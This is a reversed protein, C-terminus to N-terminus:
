GNRWRVLVIAAALLTLGSIAAGATFSTPRFNFSITHEGPPVPVARLIYDARLLPAPQGNISAQWGPYAVESLILLAPVPTTVQLSFSQPSNVTFGAQAIPYAAPGPSTIAATQGAPENVQAAFQEAGRELLAVRWRDFGPDAIKELIAADSAIEAQSVLWARPGVTNLRHVYTTDQGAPEQYIITSPLYLEERWSIVYKVNLLEWTREIPMPPALFQDYRLLRLPSAGWLDELEFPVGYNDYLRFENYVRFPEDSDGADQKIAAVAAPMRTHWEPLEPYLNTQWNATFLDFCILGAALVALLAPHFRAAFRWLLWALALLITLLIAAALLNYFPSDARWGTDNLGYFSLLALLLALFFLYRSIALLRATSPATETKAQDPGPSRARQLHAFGYGALVSLSFAAAVAWREQGRFISFGPALLYLPAYLFSNGGLSILLTVLAVVAWFFVQGRDVSRSFIVWVALLFGAVGIYLPSYLSVLGPLLLQIMDTLPFGGAMKEYAGAARVSLRTYEMAPLFQIAALALGTLLVLLAPLVLRRWLHNWAPVQSIHQTNLSTRAPALALFLLYAASLYALILASQPHGALLALGWVLGALLLSPLHPQLVPEHTGDTWNYYARHIFFLILPLWIVTELVALQQSPYGTLYGSFTFTLGGIVAAGRSRTARRLFLYMFVAALWFHAIAEVELAFLSFGWPASLLFTLLSPPYFVAAQVDAWFPAGAFTYPNWLPLRGASLERAEFTAFAWFQASFDGPPFSQRDALNPTLIRWYFLIVLAAFSLIILGDLRSWRQLKVM